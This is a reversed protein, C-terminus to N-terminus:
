HKTYSQSNKGKLLNYRRHSEYVFLTKYKTIQHTLGPKEVFILELHKFAITITDFKIHIKLQIM